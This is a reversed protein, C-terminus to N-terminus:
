KNSRIIRPRTEVFLANLVAEEVAPVLAREVVHRQSKSIAEAVIPAVREGIVDKRLVRATRRSYKGVYAFAIMAEGAATEVEADSYLDSTPAVREHNSVVFVGTAIVVLIMAVMAPRLLVELRPKLWRRVRELWSARTAATEAIAREVPGPPCELVPLSRLTASVSRAFEVEATCDSCGDIHRELTLADERDLDGDLWPEIREHIWACNIRNENSM